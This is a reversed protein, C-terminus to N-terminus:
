QSLMWIFTEATYASTKTKGHTDGTLITIKANGDQQVIAYLLRRMGAEYKPEYADADGVFAWIPVKACNEFNLLQDCGCSVPVAASFYDGYRSIMCWTGIAGLSHGTIIIHETDISYQESVSQILEMLTEQIPDTWWSDIKTNPYLAIFPFGDGYIDRASTIPGYDQLADIRGVEGIGHLFVVLPMETTANEPVFLWYDMTYDNAANTFTDCFDGSPFYFTTEAPITAETTAVIEASPEPEDTAISMDTQNDQDVRKCSTFVICILLIYLVLKKMM